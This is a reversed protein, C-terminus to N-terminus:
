SQGALDSVSKKKTAVKVRITLSFLGVISHIKNQLQLKGLFIFWNFFVIEILQLLM